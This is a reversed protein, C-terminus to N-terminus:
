VHTFLTHSHSLRPFTLSKGLSIRIDLAPSTIWTCSYFIMLFVGASLTPFCVQINGFGPVDLLLTNCGQEPMGYEIVEELTRKSKLFLHNMWTKLIDKSPSEWSNMQQSCAHLWLGVVICESNSHIQTLSWCGNSGIHAQTPTWSWDVPWHLPLCVMPNWTCAAHESIFDWFSCHGADLTLACWVSMCWTCRFCIRLPVMPHM